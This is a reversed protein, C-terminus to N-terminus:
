NKIYVSCFKLSRGKYFKLKKLQLGTRPIHHLHLSYVFSVHMAMICVLLTQKCHNTFLFLTSTRHIHTCSVIHNMSLEWNFCHRLLKLGQFVLPWQVTFYVESYILFCASSNQKYLNPVLIWRNPVMILVNKMYYDCM